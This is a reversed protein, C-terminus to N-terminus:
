SLGTPATGARAARCVLSGARQGAGRPDAAPRCLARNAGGALGDAILAAGQAGEKATGRRIRRDPADARVGRARGSRTRWRSSARWDAALPSNRPRPSDRTALAWPTKVPRERGARRPRCAGRGDGAPRPAEPSVTSEDLRRDHSCGRPVRAGQVGRGSIRSRATWRERRAFGWHAPRAEWAM